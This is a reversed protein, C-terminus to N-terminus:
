KKLIFYYIKLKFYNKALLITPKNNIQENNTIYGKNIIYLRNRM